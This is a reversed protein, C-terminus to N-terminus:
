AAKVVELTEPNSFEVKSQRDFLRMLVVARNRDDDIQLLEGIFGAFPGDHAKVKDGPKANLRASVPLKDFTGGNCAERLAEIFRAPVLKPRGPKGDRGPYHLVNAVGVFREKGLDQDPWLEVFVYGQFLPRTVIGLRTARKREAGIGQRPQMMKKYIPLFVRYGHEKITKEALFECSPKAVVVAWGPCNM